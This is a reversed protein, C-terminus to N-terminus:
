EGDEQLAFGAITKFNFVAHRKVQTRVGLYDFSIMDTNIWEHEFNEVSEFYATRGNEFYIALTKNENM